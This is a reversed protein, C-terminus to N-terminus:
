IVREWDESFEKRGGFVERRETGSGKEKKGRGGTEGKVVGLAGLM